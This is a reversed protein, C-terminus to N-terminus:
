FIYNIRPANKLFPLKSAKGFIRGGDFTNYGAGFPRFVAALRHPHLAQGATYYGKNHM